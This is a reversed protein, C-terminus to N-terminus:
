DNLIPEEDLTTIRLANSIAYYGLNQQNVTAGPGLGIYAIKLYEILDTNDKRILHNHKEGCPCSTNEPTEEGLFNQLDAVYRELRDIRYEMGSTLGSEWVPQEPTWENKDKDEIM